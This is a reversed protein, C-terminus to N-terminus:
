WHHEIGIGEIQQRFAGQSLAGQLITLPYEGRVCGFSGPQQLGSRIGYCSVARGCNAGQLPAVGAHRDQLARAAQDAVVLVATLLHVGAHM